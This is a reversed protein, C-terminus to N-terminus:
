AGAGGRVPASSCAGKVGATKQISDRLRVLPKGWPRPTHQSSPGRHGSGLTGRLLCLEKQKNTQSLSAGPVVPRKLHVSGLFPTAWPQFYRGTGGKELRGEVREPKLLLSGTEFSFSDRRFCTCM